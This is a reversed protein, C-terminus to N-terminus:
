HSEHPIVVDWRSSVPPKSWTLLTSGRWSPESATSCHSSEGCSKRTSSPRYVSVSQRGCSCRCWLHKFLQQCTLRHVSIFHVLMWSGYWQTAWKIGPLHYTSGESFSGSAQSPQARAELCCCMFTVYLTRCRLSHATMFCDAVWTQMEVDIRKKLQTAKM